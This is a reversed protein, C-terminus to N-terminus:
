ISSFVKFIEVMAWTDLKCYEWLATRTEEAEEGLLEGHFLRWWATSAEDGKGIDMGNYSLEPVMVPLVNKISWSGKFGPHLYMGKSVFDGLDYIRENLQELFAAYDPHIIVMDKNRGQEFTKNWVFVTGKDGIDQALRELLERSPEDNKVCLHGSHNVEGGPADLRHLSYQFVVQQQPHYGDFLPIASICTEYDLFYLPYQFSEFEQRIDEKNIYPKNSQAVRVIQRQKDNLPFSAPVDAIDIIGQELLEIKKNERIRPIDYISYPPLYPHCLAPCPCDKPKYCHQIDQPDDARAVKLAMQRDLAIDAMCEPIKGSVDEAVFMQAIDLEGRRIYEKNMHLIFVRDINLQEKVILYQYAADLLHEKKQSTSSKIEYLDYTDSVPKYLLADTRATYPGDTFVQQFEVTEGQGADDVQQQLYQKAYGEAEYGQIGTLQDFASPLEEIRNHKYAWLHLPAELFRRYDSKSLTIDTDM